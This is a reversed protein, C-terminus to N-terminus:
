RALEAMRETLTWLARNLRVDQDIGNIQRTTTARPTGRQGPQRPRRASLGGKIVNEQVRNMVTFLDSATDAHRRPTLLQAPRIPTDVEGDADAFRITHAAEAFAGQQGPTLQIGQWERVTELTEPLRRMLDSTGAVVADIIDGTHRVSISAITGEAVLLGNSCVFRHLGAFLKYASTGDHSNVLSVEPIVDGVYHVVPGGSVPRFRLMHKTHERRDAERARSQRADYVALGASELGRIVDETPIYAYRSSMEHYQEQAFASPAARRIADMTLPERRGGQVATGRVLSYAVSTM